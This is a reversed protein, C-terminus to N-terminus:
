NIDSSFDSGESELDLSERTNKLLEGHTLPRPEGSMRDEDVDAMSPPLVEMRRKGALVPPGQGIIDLVKKSLADDDDDDSEDLAPSSTQQLLEVTYKEIQGLYDLINTDTVEMGLQGATGANHLMVNYLSQVTSKLQGMDSAWTEHQSDMDENQNELESLRSNMKRIFSKESMSTAIGEQSKCSEVEAQTAELCTRLEKYERNLVELQQFRNFNDEDLDVLNQAIESADDLETVAYISKFAETYHKIKLTSNNIISSDTAIQWAARASVKSICKEQIQTLQGSLQKEPPIMEVQRVKEAAEKQTGEICGKLRRFEKGYAEQETSASQQLELLEEIVKEKAFTGKEYEDQAQQLEMRYTHLEKELDKYISDFVIRDRRM